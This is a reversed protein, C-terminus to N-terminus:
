GPKTIGLKKMKKFLASRDIGLANATEIMKWNNSSLSEIIYDKEFRLRAQELNKQNPRTEGYDPPLIDMAMYVDEAHIISNAAFISIKEIINKLERINGPWDYRRLIALAHPNIDLLRKNYNESFYNLYFRCLLPIDEKRERLPPVRLKVVNIRHYLDTRFTGEAVMEEINKNSASIVRVDIKKIKSSGIIEIEGDQLVRLLKSQLRLDMDGIEDLFLTGGDAQIFKGEYDKLAGTFAGKRYGFLESELLDSPIAACNIKIFPKGNRNGKYHLAKAVLEKGTGSEGLILVKADTKALTEIQSLIKLIANSEGVIMNNKNIETLLEKKESTWCKKEIANRITILLREADLPKEIFDFAGNKIADVAISITSEGSILIIPVLPNISEFKKLLELGDIGPMKVDLLVCDYFSENFVDVAKFPNSLTVVEFNKYKLLNEVSKLFSEDNDIALIKHMSKM